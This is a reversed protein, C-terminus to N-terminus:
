LSKIGINFCRLLNCEAWAHGHIVHHAHVENMAMCSFICGRVKYKVLWYNDFKVSQFNDEMSFANLFSCSKILNLCPFQFSSSTQSGQHHFHCSLASNTDFNHLYQLLLPLLFTGLPSQHWRDSIADYLRCLNKTYFGSTLISRDSLYCLALNLHRFNYSRKFVSVLCHQYIM